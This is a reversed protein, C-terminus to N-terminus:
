IYGQNYSLLCIVTNELLNIITSIIINENLQHENLMKLLHRWQRLKEKICTSRWSPSSKRTTCKSRSQFFTVSFSTLRYYCTIVPVRNEIMKCWWFRYQIYLMDNAILYFASQRPLFSIFVDSHEFLSYYQMIGYWMGGGGEKIRWM